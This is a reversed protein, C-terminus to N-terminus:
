PSGAVMIKAPKAKMMATPPPIGRPTIAAARCFEAMSKRETARAVTNALTGPKIKPMRNTIGKETAQCRSGLPPHPEGDWTTSGASASENSGMAKMARIVRELTSSTDSCHAVDEPSLDM